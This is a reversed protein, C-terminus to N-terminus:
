WFYHFWSYVSMGTELGYVREMGVSFWQTRLGSLNCFVLFSLFFLMECIDAFVVSLIYIPVYYILWFCDEGLYVDSLTIEEQKM